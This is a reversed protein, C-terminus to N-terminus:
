TLEKNTARFRFLSVATAGYHRLKDRELTGVRAPLETQRAHECVVTGDPSLLREACALANGLVAEDAYPPDLFIVDFPGELTKLIRAADGKRIRTQAEVNFVTATESLLRCCAANREVFLVSAAGRSLMEFGFAGSGAFADLVRLESLDPGLLSMLAERVRESTPRVGRRPVPIRRGGLM